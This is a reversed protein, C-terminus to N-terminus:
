GQGIDVIQFNLDGNAVGDAIIGVAGAILELVGATLDYYDGLFRLAADGQEKMSGDGVIGQLTYGYPGMKLATCIANVGLVVSELNSRDVILRELTSSM